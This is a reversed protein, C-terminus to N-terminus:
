ENPREGFVEPYGLAKIFTAYRKQPLFNEEIQRRAQRGINKLSSTDEFFSRLLVMISESDNPKVLYGTKGDQILEPVGGVAAAVVPLEMAMAEMFAAGIAEDYSPLLFVHADELHAKVTEQSSSGLLKVRDTLNLKDINEQLKAHYGSGGKEDEGLIIYDFSHGERALAALVTLVIPYGKSPNLRSCAVFRLHINTSRSIRYDKDRRFYSTDVGMSAVYLPISLNPHERKLEVLMTQTVVLGFSAHSWKMALNYADYNASHRSISYNIKYLQSVFCILDCGSFQFHSHIHDIQEKKLRAGYFVALFLNRFLTLRQKKDFDQCSAIHNCLGYLRSWNLRILQLWHGPSFTQRSVAYVTERCASLCWDHRGYGGMPLRTSGFRVDLGLDRIALAERWFFSHTQGPFEPVFYLLKRM